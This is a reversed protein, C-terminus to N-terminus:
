SNAAKSPVKGTHNKNLKKRINNCESLGIALKYNSTFKNQAFCNRRRRRRRRRRISLMITLLFFLDLDGLVGGVVLDPVVLDGRGAVVL